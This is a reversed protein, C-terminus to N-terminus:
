LGFDVERTVIACKDKIDIEIDSCFTGNPLNMISSLIQGTQNYDDDIAQKGLLCLEYNKDTMIKQLIKAVGLPQLDQDTSMDTQIHIGNDAGMALATRITEVSRVTTSRELFFKGKAESPSLPSKM